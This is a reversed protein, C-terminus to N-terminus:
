GPADPAPPRTLGFAASREGGRLSISRTWFIRM